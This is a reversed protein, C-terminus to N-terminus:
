PKQSRCTHTMQRSAGYALGAVLLVTLGGDIPVDNSDPDGGNDDPSGDTTTQDGSASGSLSPEPDLIAKMGDFAGGGEMLPETVVTEMLQELQEIHQGILPDEQAQALDPLLCALATVLAAAPMGQLFKMRMKKNDDQM